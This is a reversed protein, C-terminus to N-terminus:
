RMLLASSTSGYSLKHILGSQPRLVRWHPSTMGERTLMTSAAFVRRFSNAIMFYDRISRDKLLGRSNELPKSKREFIGMCSLDGEIMFARIALITLFFNQLNRLSLYFYKTWVTTQHRLGGESFSRRTFCPLHSIGKSDNHM